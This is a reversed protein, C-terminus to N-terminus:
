FFKEGQINWHYGRVNQYFISYHALLLNLGTALQDAQKADLGIRNTKYKMTINLGRFYGSSTCSIVIMM